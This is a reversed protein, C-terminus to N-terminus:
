IKKRKKENSHEEILIRYIDDLGRNKRYNALRRSINLKKGIQSDNLNGYYYLIITESRSKPLSEIIRKLENNSIVMGNVSYYAEENEPIAERLFLKDKRLQSLEEIFSEKESRRAYEKRLNRAKNRIANKCYANFQCRIRNKNNELM